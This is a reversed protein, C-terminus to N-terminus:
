PVSSIAVDIQDATVGRLPLCPERIANSFGSTCIPSHLHNERHFWVVGVIWSYDCTKRRRVDPHFGAM